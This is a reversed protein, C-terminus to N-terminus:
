SVVQALRLLAIDRLATVTEARETADDNGLRRHLEGLIQASTRGSARILFVHGFRDEYTANGVRLRDEHSAAIGSQEAQSFAAESDDGTPREGIRPHRSLAAELEEDSLELASDHAQKLLQELDAYPRNGVVEEVWRPVGLCGAVLSRAADATLANLEAVEVDAV